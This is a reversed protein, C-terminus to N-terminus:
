DKYKWEYGGSTYHQGGALQQYLVAAYVQIDALMELAIFSM